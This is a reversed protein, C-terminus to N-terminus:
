PRAAGPPNAGVVVAEGERLGEVIETGAEDRAGTVVRRAIAQGGEAVRVVATAGERQVARRPVVLAGPHRELVISVSATMEPRLVRDPPRPFRVVAVYNVVNDRIEARPYIAAIEGEFIRDPFSDVTFRAAQGVRIRGIDTEDVYAWAELRDLDVITVFTPAALAASVTEGEQTSVSSVVGDIPSVIRAQALQTDALALAARGEAVAAAAVAVGREALELDARSAAEGAALRRRRALDATAFALNARASALAAAAQDRRAQLEAGDLRALLQGRRVPDGIRVLLREVVGSARSGVRVEAGTVPRIVGTAKAVAELDRRAVRAVEGVAAPDRGRRPGRVWARAAWASVLGLAAVAIWIARRRRAGRVGTTM